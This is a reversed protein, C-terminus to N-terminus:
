LYRRRVEVLRGVIYVNRSNLQRHSYPILNYEPNLSKLIIGTDVETLHQLARYEEEVGIAVISGTEYEDDLRVIAIDGDKM